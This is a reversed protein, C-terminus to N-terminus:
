RIKVPLVISKMSESCVIMPASGGSFKMSVEEDTHAKLTELVLKSNFGIVLKEKIAKQLHVIEAYDATKDRISLKLEDGEIEFKTPTMEETCLKARIVAELLDSRRVSIEDQYSEFFKDYKFYAGEVLRTYIEYEDAKFIASNKDHEIYVSGSMELSLLKEAASRPILLEFEGDFETEVLAIVHGDLGVFNLKGDHAQMCLATMVTNSSKSPIAYLVHAIADKLVKCDIAMMGGGELTRDATYAYDEAPLSPYTNKIKEMTITIKNSKGESVDLEGDPLNKILDFARSPIIFHEGEAGELKAKVTMETNSAILYGNKVLVGMLAPTPSSKPVVSKIKDLKKALETKNVKM